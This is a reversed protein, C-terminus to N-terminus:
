RAQAGAPAARLYQAPWRSPVGLEQAALLPWYPNRLLERGLMVLDAQGTRVVHEAQVAATIMGVAACPIDAQKRVAASFETQYGPGFPVRAQPALGASSIDLLDVGLGKLQKALEVTQDLSWGGDLWDTASLRVLVPLDEPWIARVAAVVERLLRTRNEFSGGYQDTRQNAIPSLFQHLLYGHAAHIEVIQFGADKARVAALAFAAVVSALEDVTLERPLRYDDSFALSSPGVPDWGGEEDTLARQPGWGVSIGAKRGAHALQIAPVAGQGSILAALDALADRQSENWIGLDAPSIRGEPVIATAELMIMGVGGVARAAYHAQHWRGAVGDVASYQCMPSMAIRNKLTLGRLQLPSFLCSM